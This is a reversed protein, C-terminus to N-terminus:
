PLAAELRGEERELDSEDSSRAGSAQVKVKKEGDAKNEVQLPTDRM